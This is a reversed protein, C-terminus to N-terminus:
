QRGMKADLEHLYRQLHLSILLHHHYKNHQSKITNWFCDCIAIEVWTIFRCDLKTFIKRPCANDGM